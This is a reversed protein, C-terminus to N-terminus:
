KKRNIIIMLRNHTYTHTHTHTPFELLWPLHLTILNKFNELVMWPIFNDKKSSCFTMFLSHNYTHMDRERERERERHTYTDTHIHTHTRHHYWMYSAPTMSTSITSLSVGTVEECIDEYDEYIDEFADLDTEALSEQMASSLNTHHRCKKSKRKKKTKKTRPKWPFLPYRIQNNVSPKALSSSSTVAPLRPLQWSSPMAGASHTTPPRLMTTPTSGGLSSGADGAPPRKKKLTPLSRLLCSFQDLNSM